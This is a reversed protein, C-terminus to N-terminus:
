NCTRQTIRIALRASYEGGCKGADPIKGDALDKALNRLETLSLPYGTRKARDKIITRLKEEHFPGSPYFCGPEFFFEESLKLAEVNAQDQLSAM